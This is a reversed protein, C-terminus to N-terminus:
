RFAPGHIWTTLSYRSGDTVETVRHLIYSPFLIADGQVTGVVDVRGTANLELRGGIYDAPDSLQAVLTLKRKEAFTGSGIDSHWDFHSANSADYVAVQVREAFETLDFSFHTRNAAIVTSTVRSFVWDAEGEEDLWSIRATRISENQRGRVLGAERLGEIQAMRIIEACEDQSFMAPCTLPTLM